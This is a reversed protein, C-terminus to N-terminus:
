VESRFLWALGWHAATQNQTCQRSLWSELPPDGQVDILLMEEWSPGWPEAEPATVILHLALSDLM